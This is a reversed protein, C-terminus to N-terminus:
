NTGMERLEPLNELREMMALGLMLLADNLKPDIALLADRVADGHPSFKNILNAAALELVTFEEFGRKEKKMGKERSGWRAMGGPHEM